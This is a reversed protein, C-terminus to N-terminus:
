KKTEKVHLYISKLTPCTIFTPLIKTVSTLHKDYKIDTIIIFWKKFM